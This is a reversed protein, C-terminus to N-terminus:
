LKLEDEFGFFRMDRIRLPYLIGDLHDCEHQVVRAHFGEAIRDIAEGEPTFGRYRISRYRPVLGRLGPVSLCGEWGDVTESDLIEIVPNVLVTFPVPAEDPYRANKEFGFMVVRQNIGIQPAAIGVGGKALMTDHMDEILGRLTPTAFEMVAESPTALQPNGLKVVPQQPM